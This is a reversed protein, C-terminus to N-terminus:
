IVTWSGLQTGSEKFQRRVYGMAIVTESKSISTPLKAVSTIRGAPKEDQVIEGKLPEGNGSFKLGVLM